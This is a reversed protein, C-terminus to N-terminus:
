FHVNANCCVHRSFLLLVPMHVKNQPPGVTLAEYRLHNHGSLLLSNQLLNELMVCILM